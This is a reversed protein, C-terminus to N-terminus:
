GAAILTSGSRAATTWLYIRSAPTAWRPPTSRILHSSVCVTSAHWGMPRAWGFIGMAHKPSPQSPAIPCTMRPTGSMWWIIRHIQQVTPAFAWYSPVQSGRSPTDQLCLSITQERGGCPLGKRPQLEPRDSRDSPDSSDSPDPERRGARRGGGAM